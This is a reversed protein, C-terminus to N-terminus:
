SSVVTEKRLREGINLTKEEDINEGANRELVNVM